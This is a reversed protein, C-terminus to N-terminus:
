IDMLYIFYLNTRVLLLLGATRMDARQQGQSDELSTFPLQFLDVCFGAWSSIPKSIDGEVSIHQHMLARKITINAHPLELYCLVLGAQGELLSVIRKLIIVTNHIQQPMWVEPSMMNHKGARYAFVM